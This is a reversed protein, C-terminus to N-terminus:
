GFAGGGVLRFGDAGGILGWAGVGRGLNGTGKEHTSETSAMHADISRALDFVREQPAEIKTELQILPMRM